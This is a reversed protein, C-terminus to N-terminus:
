IIQRPGHIRKVSFAVVVILGLLSLVMSSPEPTPTPVLSVNISDVFATNPGSYAFGLSGGSTLRGGSSDSGTFDLVGNVLVDFDVANPTNWLTLTLTYPGLTGLAPVGLSTGGALTENGNYLSVYTGQGSRGTQETYLEYGGSTAGAPARVYFMATNNNGSSFGEEISYSIASSGTDPIANAANLWIASNPEFEANQGTFQVDGITTFMEAATTANQFNQDLLGQGYAFNGTVVDVLSVLVVLCLLKKM